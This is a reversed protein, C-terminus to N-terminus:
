GDRRSPDGRRRRPSRERPFRNWSTAVGGHPRTPQLDADNAPEHPAARRRSPRAPAAPRDRRVRSVLTAPLGTAKLRTKLIERIRQDNFPRGTLRRWDRVDLARFFPTAKPAEGLGAAELYAPLWADLKTRCPIEREMDFECLIRTVADDSGKSRRMRQLLM